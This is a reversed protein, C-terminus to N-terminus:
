LWTNVFGLLAVLVLSTLFPLFWNLAIDHLGRERLSLGHGIFALLCFILWIWGLPEKFYGILGIGGIYFLAHTHWAQWRRGYKFLFTLDPQESNNLLLDKFKAFDDNTLDPRHQRFDRIKISAWGFRGVRENLESPMALASKIREYTRIFDELANELRELSEIQLDCEWIMSELSQIEKCLLLHLARLDSRIRFSATVAVTILVILDTDRRQSLDLGIKEAIRAIPEGVVERYVTMGERIWGTWEVFSNAMDTLALTLLVVATVKLEWRGYAWHRRFTTFPESVSRILSIDELIARSDATEQETPRDENTMDKSRRQDSM